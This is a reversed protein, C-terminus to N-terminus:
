YQGFNQINPIEACMMVNTIKRIKSCFFKFTSGKKNVFKKNVCVKHM